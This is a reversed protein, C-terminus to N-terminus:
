PKFRWLRFHIYQNEMIHQFHTMWIGIITNIDKPKYMMLSAQIFDKPIRPLIKKPGLNVTLDKPSTKKAWLKVTLIRPLSM